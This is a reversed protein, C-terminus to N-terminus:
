LPPHISPHCPQHLAKPEPSRPLSRPKQPDPHAIDQSTPRTIDINNNMDNTKTTVNQPEPYASALTARLNAPPYLIGDVSATASATQTASLAPHIVRKINRIPLAADARITCIVELFDNAM